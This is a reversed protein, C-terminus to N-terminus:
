YYLEKYAKEVHFKLITCAVVTQTNLVEYMADIELEEEHAEKILAALAESFQDKTM